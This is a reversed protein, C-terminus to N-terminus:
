DSDAPTEEGSCHLTIPLKPVGGGGVPLEVEPASPQANDTEGQPAYWCRSFTM